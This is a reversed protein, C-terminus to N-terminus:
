GNLGVHRQDRDSSCETSTKGAPEATLVPLVLMDDAFHDGVPTRKVQSAFEVEAGPADTLKAPYQM